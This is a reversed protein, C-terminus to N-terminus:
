AIVCGEVAFVQRSMRASHGMWYCHNQANLRCPYVAEGGTIPFMLGQGPRFRLHMYGSLRKYRPQDLMQPVQQYGMFYAVIFLMREDYDLWNAVGKLARPDPPGYRAVLDAVEPTKFTAAPRLLVPSVGRPVTLPQSLM